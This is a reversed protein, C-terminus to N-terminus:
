AYGMLRALQRLNRLLGISPPAGTIFFPVDVAPPLKTVLTELRERQERLGGLENSQMIIAPRVVAEFGHALGTGAFVPLGGLDSRDAGPHVVFGGLSAGLARGKLLCVQTAVMSDLELYFRFSDSVEDVWAKFQEADAQEWEARPILVGSFENAFYALRWEDPLDDPYFDGMWAPYDWGVPMIHFTPLQDPM